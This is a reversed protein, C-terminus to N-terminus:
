CVGALSQLLRSRSPAGSLRLGRQEQGDRDLFVLTPYASLNFNHQLRAEPLKPNGNSTRTMDVRILNACSLRAVIQPETLTGELQRCPACWDAYFELVVPKDSAGIAAELMGPDHIPRAPVIEGAMANGAVAHVMFWLLLRGTAPGGLLRKRM